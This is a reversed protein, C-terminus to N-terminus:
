ENLMEVIEEARIRAYRWDEDVVLRITSNDSVRFVRYQAVQSIIPLVEFDFKENRTVVKRSKEGFLKKLIKIM